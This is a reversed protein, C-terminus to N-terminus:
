LEQHCFHHSIMLMSKPSKMEQKISIRMKAVFDQINHIRALKVSRLLQGLTTCPSCQIQCALGMIALWTYRKCQIEMMLKVWISSLLVDLRMWVAAYLSNFTDWIRTM